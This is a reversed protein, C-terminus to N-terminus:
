PCPPSEPAGGCRRVASKLWRLQSLERVCDCCVDLHAAIVLMTTVDCECDVYWNIVALVEVCTLDAPVAPKPHRALPDPTVVFLRVRSDTGPNGATTPDRAMGFRSDSEPVEASTM